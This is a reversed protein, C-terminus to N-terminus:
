AGIMLSLMARFNEPSFLAASKFKNLSEDLKENSDVYSEIITRISELNLGGQLFGQNITIILENYIFYKTAHEVMKKLPEVMNPSINSFQADYGLACSLIWDVPLAAPPMISIVGTDGDILMPTPTINVPTGTFSSLAEDISNAVSRGASIENPFTGYLAMTTPYAIDYVATIPRNERATPPIQYIGCNGGMAVILTNDEITKQYQNYLVLKKPKGAYLNCKALVIDEIITQMIIADNTLHKEDRLRRFGVDIIQPPIEFFLNRILM